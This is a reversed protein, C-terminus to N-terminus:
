VRCTACPDQPPFSPPLIGKEGRCLPHLPDPRLSPTPQTTKSPGELRLMAAQILQWPLQQALILFPSIHLVAFSYLSACTTTGPAKSENAAQMSM